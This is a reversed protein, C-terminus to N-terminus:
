ASARTQKIVKIHILGLLNCPLDPSVQPVWLSEDGEAEEDSVQCRQVHLQHTPSIGHLTVQSPTERETHLSQTLYFTLAVTAEILL